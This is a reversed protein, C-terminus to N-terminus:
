QQCVCTEACWVHRTKGCAECVAGFLANQACVYCSPATTDTEHALRDTFYYADRKQLIRAVHEPFATSCQRIKDDVACVYRLEELRRLFAEDKFQRGEYICHPADQLMMQLTRAQPGSLQTGVLRRTEPRVDGTQTCAGLDVTPGISCLCFMDPLAHTRPMFYVTYGFRQLLDRADQVAELGVGDAAAWGREVLTRALRGMM